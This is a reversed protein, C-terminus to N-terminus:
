DRWRYLAAESPFLLAAIEKPLKAGIRSVEQWEITHDKGPVADIYVAWDGVQDNINAVALVRPSLARFYYKM